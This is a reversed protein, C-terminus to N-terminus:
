RDREEGNLYYEYMEKITEFINYEPAWNLESKINRCDCCIRQTDTARYRKQDFKITIEQSSLSVLYDLITRLRYANGSGINFVKYCSGSEVIMRYARVIDKVNSFDREVSLNGVYITGPKGSREITAVQKCFSPWVFAEDQGIGTHNFPRVYFVQIDFCRRYLTAFKEQTEKSIGYPNNADLPMQEHLPIDSPAFEESSGILLVKPKPECEKAAELLNIAGIVNVMMTMQPSNWSLGVSSIAALNVIVDPQIQIIIQKIDDKLIDVKHFVARDDLWAARNLDFGFVKYGHGLFEQTLYRGVFGSIGVIVVSKM